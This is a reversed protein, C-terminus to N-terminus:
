TKKKWRAAQAKKINARRARTQAETPKKHEPVNPRDKAEFIDGKIRKPKSGLKNIVNRADTTDPVLRGDSIHADGKSILWAQTGWSGTSRKGALRQVHGKEGVDHYRFTTFDKKDRVEIRYYDGGGQTGVKARSRGEPQSRSRQSSSMQKTKQQTEQYKKAATKQKTTAM